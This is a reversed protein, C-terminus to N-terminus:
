CDCLHTGTQDIIPRLKLHNINMQKTDTFKHTKATAFLRAPQSSTPRTKRYKEHRKFNRYILNQFPKLETLTNDIEETVYVGKSKGDNILRNIKEKYCTTDLIVVSSDKDASLLVIDKNTKLAKLLIHTNEKTRYVNQTFTKTASRLFEHFKKKDDPSIDRDVSSCLTEFEVAIDKKIYKNKEEFYQKLGHEFPSIDISQM